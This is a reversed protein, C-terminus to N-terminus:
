DVESGMPAGKPGLAAFQGPGPCNACRRGLWSEWPDPARATAEAGVNFELGKGAGLQLGAAMRGDPVAIRLASEQGAEDARAEPGTCAAGRLM